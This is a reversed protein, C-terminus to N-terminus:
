WFGYVPGVFYFAALGITNSFGHALISAWLNNGYRWKLASFFLADLTALVVGIFGQETNALGFLLSSFGIGLVIGATNEGFVDMVRRQLYGRYVIEEGFAALTWTFALFVALQGLNGKLDAYASLDHTSGTLHNLVPVFVLVHLLTWVLVLLFVQVAMRGFRAGSKFGLVAPKERRALLSVVMIALIVLTPILWDVAIVIVALLVEVAALANWLVNKKM